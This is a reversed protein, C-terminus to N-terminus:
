LLFLILILLLYMTLNILNSKNNVFFYQKVCDDAELTHIWDNYKWFYESLESNQLTDKEYPIHIEKNARKLEIEDKILVKEYKDLYDKWAKEKENLPCILNGLNSYVCKQDIQIIGFIGFDVEISCNANIDCDQTININSGCIFGEEGPYIEVKILEGSQCAMAENTIEGNILSARDICTKNKTINLYDEFPLYNQIDSININSNNFKINTENITSNLQIIESININYACVLNLECDENKECEENLNSLNACRYAIENEEEKYKIRCTLNQNCSKMKPDCYYNEAFGQCTEFCLNNVCQSLDSCREGPLVTKLNTICFGMSSDKNPKCIKNSPCTKLSIHTNGNRDTWNLMCQGSLLDLNSCEYITISNIKLFYIVNLLFLIVKIM